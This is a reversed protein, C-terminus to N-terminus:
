IRQLQDRPVWGSLGDPREIKVWGSSEKLVKVKWGEYGIFHTTANEEPEYKVEVSSLLIARGSLGEIKVFFAIVHFVFVLSLGVVFVLTKRFRWGWFLGALILVSIASLVLCMVMIIEDEAFYPMHAFVRDTWKVPTNLEPNKMMSRAYIWNARLDADRPSLRLAREYWLLARGLENKKMHCNGVNYFVAASVFGADMIEQYLNLAADYDGAKYATNAKLFRVFLEGKQYSPKCGALAVALVCM